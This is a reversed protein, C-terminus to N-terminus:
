NLSKSLTIFGTSIKQGAVMVTPRIRLSINSSSEGVNLLGNVFGLINDKSEGAFLQLLDTQVVFPISTQGGNAPVTVTQNVMGSLINAKDMDIAWELGAIQAMTANPNEVNINMTASLPLSGSVIGATLKLLSAASLNNVNSVNNLSIGAVSPNTFGSFAYKCNVFSAVNSLVDCSLIM